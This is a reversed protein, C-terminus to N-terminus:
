KTNALVVRKTDQLEPRIIAIGKYDFCTAKKKVLMYINRQSMLVNITCFHTTNLLSM